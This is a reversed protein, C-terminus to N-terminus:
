EIAGLGDLAPWRYDRVTWSGVQKVMTTWTRCDVLLWHRDPAAYKDIGPCRATQQLQRHADLVSVGQGISGNAWREWRVLGLGKAFYFRELHDATTIDPGGYHESVIMDLAPRALRVPQVDDVVIRVPFDVRDLRYRTFADNFRSPCYGPTSAINLKAVASQWREPEIDSQFVLWSLFRADGGTPRRCNAGIFWQVGGGGDETMAFSAWNGIFLLVQGGDGRGEDFRGFTRGDTGFDFTQIVLARSGRREIVSDSAQYGRSTAADALTNPWDHKRYGAVDDARQLRSSACASEFPLSSTPQGSEDLCIRQVVYEVLQPVEQGQATTSMLFLLALLLAAWRDFM